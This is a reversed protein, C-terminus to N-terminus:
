AAGKPLWLRLHGSRGRELMYGTDRLVDIAMRAEDETIECWSAAFRREFGGSNRLYADLRM